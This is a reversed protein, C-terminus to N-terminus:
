YPFPIYMHTKVYDFCSLETDLEHKRIMILESSISRITNSYMKLTYANSMIMTVVFRVYRDVGRSQM